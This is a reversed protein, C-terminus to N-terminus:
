TSLRKLYNQVPVDQPFKQGLAVFLAKAEQVKGEHFTTYAATFDRALAIQEPTVLLEEDGEAMGMLEYITVRQMRGKVAIFDLPRTVFQKGLREQVTESIIITTSYIKNVSQLRSATNVVDGIATYNMREETGINGVIVEGTHVGFRTRCLPLKKETQQRNFVDVALRCRLTAYAAKDIHDPVYHPANWMAMVSDGIYKDITGNHNLIVNSLTNFYDSLIAMLKEVPLSETITTFNEIDSFFVTVERKEGGLTIEKGQKILTLVIEKPVYRGFSQLALRMSAISADLKSIEEIHSHISERNQFDLSQIADVERALQEIPNSIHKASLYVLVGAILLIACSILITQRQISLAYAFFDEFNVIVVVSWPKPFRIPFSAFYAFYKVKNDEFLFGRKKFQEFYSYANSVTSFRIPSASYSEQPPITINGEPNVAFVGGAIGKGIQQHTIFNSFVELSVNSSIVALSTGDPSRVPISVAIADSKDNEGTNEITWSEHPWTVVRTYWSDDRHDYYVQTINKEDLLSLNSDLYHQVERTPQSARDIARVLYKAGYPVTQTLSSTDAVSLFNGSATGIKIEDIFPSSRLINLLYAILTSNKISIASEDQVLPRTAQALTLLDASFYDIKAVATKSIKAISTTAFEQISQRNKYYAFFITTVSSAAILILFITLIDVRLKRQALSSRLLQLTSLRKEM